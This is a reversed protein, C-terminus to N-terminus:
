RVLILWLVIFVFLNSLLNVLNNDVFKIGKEYQTEKECHVKKETIKQCVPCKYKVQISAGLISDFISGFFGSLLIIAVSTISHNIGLYYIIGIFLSGLLSSSLGLFSINGSIGKEGTKGTLINIPMKKSLTGIDSALTDALSEAMVSAYILLYTPNSTIKYLLIALTSTGVNAIIQIMVRKEHKKKKTFLKTIISGLFVSVLIIFATIGGFYTIIISFVIAILLAPITLAKKIRALFGLLLSLVISIGLNM